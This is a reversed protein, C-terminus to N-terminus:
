VQKSNKIIKNAEIVSVVVGIILLWWGWGALVGALLIGLGLGVVLKSAVFLVFDFNSLKKAGDILSM